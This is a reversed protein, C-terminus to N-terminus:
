PFPQRAQPDRRRRDAATLVPYRRADGTWVGGIGPRLIRTRGPIWTVSQVGILTRYAPASRLGARRLAARDVKPGAAAGPPIAVEVVVPDTMAPREGPEGRVRLLWWRGGDRWPIWREGARLIAARIRGWAALIGGRPHM